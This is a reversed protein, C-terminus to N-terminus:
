QVQVLGDFSMPFTFTTTGAGAPRPFTLNKFGDGVCTELKANKPASSLVEVANVVGTPGVTAKVTVVARAGKGTGVLKYCKDFLEMHKQVQDLIDKQSIATAVIPADVAGGQAKGISGDKKADPAAGRAPLENAPASNKTAEPASQPAASGAAEPPTSSSPPTAASPPPAAGCGLAFFLPIALAFTRSM